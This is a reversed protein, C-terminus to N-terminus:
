CVTCWVENYGLRDQDCLVSPIAPVAGSPFSLFADLVTSPLAKWLLVLLGAGLGLSPM